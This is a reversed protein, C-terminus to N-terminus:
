APRIDGGAPRHQLRDRRELEAFVGLVWEVDGALGSRDAEVPKPAPQADVARILYRV